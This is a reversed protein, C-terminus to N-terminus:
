LLFDLCTDKNKGTAEKFIRLCEIMNAVSGCLTETGAVYAKKERVEIKQQGINHVGDELGLASIADTVIVLGLM